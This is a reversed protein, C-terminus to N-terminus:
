PRSRAAARRAAASATSSARPSRSRNSLTSPEASAIEDVTSPADRTARTANEVGTILVTAADADPVVGHPAPPTRRRHLAHRPERHARGCPTAPVVQVCRLSSAPPLRPRAAHRRARRRRARHARPCRVEDIGSRSPRSAMCGAHPRAGRAARRGASIVSATSTCDVGVRRVRRTTLTRMGLRYGGLDVTRPVCGCARGVLGRRVPAARTSRTCPARCPAGLACM